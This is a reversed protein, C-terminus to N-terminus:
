RRMRALAARAEETVEVGDAGAALRKLLAVAGAWELAMLARTERLRESGTPWSRIAAELRRVVELRKETALSRRALVLAAPGLTPLEKSVRERTRFDDSDLRDLLAAWRAPEIPLAPRLRRALLTVGAQTSLRCAADFAARSDAAALRRWDDEPEGPPLRGHVDWLLITGHEAATALTRGDASFALGRDYHGEPTELRALTVAGPWRRVVAGTAMERLQFEPAGRNDPGWAAVLRGDRSPKLGVVGRAEWAPRLTEGDWWVVRIIPDERHYDILYLGVGGPSFWAGGTGATFTAVPRGGTADLLKLVTTAERGQVRVLIRGGDPSFVLLPVMTEPEPRRGILGSTFVRAGTSADWVHVLGISDQGAVRSGDPSIAVEGLFAEDKLPPLRLRALEKGSGTDYVIALGKYGGQSVVVRRGDASLARVPNFEEGTQVYVARGARSRVDWTIVAQDRGLSILDGEARFCLDDIVGVHGSPRAIPKGTRPDWRTPATTWGGAAVESGDPSFALATVREGPVPWRRLERGADADYLRVTADVFGAALLGGPGFALRTPRVDGRSLVRGPKGDPSWLRLTADPGGTALHRGRPDYALALERGRWESHAAARWKVEGTRVDWVTLHGAGDLTALEDRRPDPHAALGHVRDTDLPLSREHWKVRDYVAIRYRDNWGPVRKIAPVAVWSETAAIPGHEAPGFEWVRKGTEVSWMLMRPGSFLYRGGPCFCVSASYDDKGHRLGPRVAGTRVDILRLTGSAWALLKGDPSYALADTRSGPLRNMSGLRAVAGEPLPEPVFPAVAFLLLLM